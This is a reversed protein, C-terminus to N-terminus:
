LQSPRIVQIIQPCWWSKPLRWIYMICNCILIYIYPFKRFHPYGSIMAIEMLWGAIPTRHYAVEVPSFEAGRFREARCATARGPRSEAAVQDAVRSRPSKRPLDHIKKQHILTTGGHERWNHNNFTTLGDLGVLQNIVHPFCGYFFRLWSIVM